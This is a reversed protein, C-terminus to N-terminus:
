MAALREPPMASLEDASLTVDLADGPLIETAVFVFIALMALTIM